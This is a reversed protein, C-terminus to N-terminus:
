RLFCIFTSIHLVTCPKSLAQTLATDLRNSNSGMFCHAFNYSTDFYDLQEWREGSLTYTVELRKRSYNKLLCLIAKLNIFILVIM